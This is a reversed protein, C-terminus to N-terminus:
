QNGSKKAIVFTGFFMCGNKPLIYYGVLGLINVLSYIFISFTTRIIINNIKQIFVTRLFCNMLLTLVRFDPIIKTMYQITFGNNSLKNAIGFSTFRYFDYPIEHEEWIFPVTLILRGEYTIIRNVDSLLRNTDKVHELVEIMLVTDITNNKIPISKGDFLVDIPEDMHSHGSLPTDLGIYTSTQFLDFYPKKGCGLDLVIDSKDPVNRKIEDLIGKRSYYFPNTFFGILGPHHSKKSIFQKFKKIM